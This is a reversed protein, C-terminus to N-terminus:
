FMLCCQNCGDKNNRKRNNNEEMKDNSPVVINVDDSLSKKINSKGEKSKNIVRDDSNNGGCGKNNSISIEIDNQDVTGEKGKGKGDNDRIRDLVELFKKKDKVVNEKDYSVGSLGSKNDENSKDLDSKSRDDSVNNNDGNMKSKHKDLVSKYSDYWTKMINMFEAVVKAYKGTYNFFALYCEPEINFQLKNHKLLHMLMKKTEKNKIQKLYTRKSNTASSISFRQKYVDISKSDIVEYCNSDLQIINQNLLYFLLENLFSYINKSVKTVSSVNTDDIMEKQQANVNTFQKGLFCEFAKVDKDNIVKKDSSIFLFFDSLSELLMNINVKIINIIINLM